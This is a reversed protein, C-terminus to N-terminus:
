FLNRVPDHAGFDRSSAEVILQCYREEHTDPDESTPNPSGWRPMGAGDITPRPTPNLWFDSTIVRTTADDCDFALAEPCDTKSDGAGLLVTPSQLAEAIRRVKGVETDDLRRGHRKVEAPMITGDALLLVIDAEGIQQTGQYFEVGPHAGVIYGPRNGLAAILWRMILAHYISDDGISRRLPEALRYRLPLSTLGFPDTLVRGCRPCSVEAVHEVPRHISCQCHNCELKVVRQVLRQQLAWTLWANAVSKKRGFAQSLGSLDFTGSTEADHSINVERLIEEFRQMAAEPDQQAQAVEQALRDTRQKFWSMSTSAATDYLHALLGRHALWRLGASGGALETLAMAHRGAVSERVTLGHEHAAAELLTWSHPWVVEGIGTSSAKIIAGRGGYGPYWNKSRLATVPPIPRRDVEVTLRLSKDSDALALVERDDDLLTTALAVGGAFSLTTTSSRALPAPAPVLVDAPVLPFVRRGSFRDSVAQLEEQGLSTSTIAIMPSTGTVWFPQRTVSAINSHLEDADVSGSPTRPVPVGIPLVPRWGHLSRLNWLLAADAVSGPEYLVYVNHGLGRVWSDPEGLWGDIAYSTVDPHRATLEIRSLAVPSVQKSRSILDDVSTQPTQRQLDVVEDFQLDDRAKSRALLSESPRQPLRGLMITYALEWVDSQDAETVVVPRLTDRPRTGTVLLVPLEDGHSLTPLRLREAVDARVRELAPRRMDSAWTSLGDLECHRLLHLYLQSISGDPAVPVLLDGVGGWVQCLHEVLERLRPYDDDWM